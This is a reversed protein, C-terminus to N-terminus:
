AGSIVINGKTVDPPEAYADLLKCNQGLIMPADAYWVEFNDVPTMSPEGGDLISFYVRDGEFIFYTGTPDNVQTVLGSFWAGGRFLPIAFVNVCDVDAKLSLPYGFEDSIEFGAQGFDGNPGSHASFSFHVYKMTTEPFGVWGGGVGKIDAGALATGAGFAAIAGLVAAISFLKRM